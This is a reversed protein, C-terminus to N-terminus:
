VYKVWKKQGIWQIITVIFILLFFAWSIASAYGMKFYEFGTRYIHYVLVMTSNGPGGETMMMVHGFVKFASMAGTIMLFLTTPSVLPMTIHIFKNFGSAGDIDAAEYYSRDVSQLGALYIIVFYGIHQWIWVVMVSPLAWEVSTLWLPPNAIGISRLFENIPGFKPNYLLSFIVSIATITTIYPMFMLARLLGRAYIQQNLMVALMLALLLTVPVCVLTFLVNNKLAATFYADNALNRFNELGIFNANELGGFLNFDTFSMYLSYAIPILMFIVFGLLAPLIFLYATATDKMKRKKMGTLQLTM